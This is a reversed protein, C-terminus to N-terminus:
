GISRRSLKRAVKINQLWQSSGKGTLVGAKFTEAVSLQAGIQEKDAEPNEAREATKKNIERQELDVKRQHLDREVEMARRLIERIAESEFSNRKVVRSAVFYKQRKGMSRRSVQKSIPQCPLAPVTPEDCQELASSAEKSESELAQKRAAVSAHIYKSKAALSAKINYRSKNDGTSTAPFDSLEIDEHRLDACRTRRKPIMTTGNLENDRVNSLKTKIKPLTALIASNSPVLFAPETVIADAVSVTDLTWSSFLDPVTSVTHSVSEQTSSPSKQKIACHVLMDEPPAVCLSGFGLQFIFWNKWKARALRKKSPCRFVFEHRLQEVTLDPGARSLRDIRGKGVVARAKLIAVTGPKLRELLWETNKEEIDVLSPNRYKLERRLEDNTMTTGNVVPLTRLTEYISLDNKVKSCTVHRDVSSGTKTDLSILSAKSTGRLTELGTIEVKKRRQDVGTSCTSGSVQPSSKSGAVQPSPRM